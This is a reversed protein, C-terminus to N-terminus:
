SKARLGSWDFSDGPDSKRGPAIDSHGVIRGRDLTPYARLLATILAELAAYQAAEYELDDTGELEIGVSFDNCAERGAYSSRGAHWARRNVSVFQVIQGDRQILFHASVRQGAIERFYPHVETQLNGAFFQEIHPGGFGAPPLSIGHIVVLSIDDAVPRADFHPSLVQRVGPALGTHPDIQM